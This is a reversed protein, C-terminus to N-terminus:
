RRRSRGVAGLIRQQAEVAHKVQDWSVVGMQVLAEGLRVGAARQISLAIEIEEPRAYGLQVFIEGILTDSTLRLGSGSDPETGMVFAGPAEPIPARPSPPPGKPMPGHRLHHQVRLGRQIQKPTTAGIRLLAEGIRIGERRQLRTAEEIQASTVIGLNKLIQGLLSEDSQPANEAGEEARQLDSPRPEAPEPESPRAAEVSESNIQAEVSVVLEHLIRFVVNASASEMTEASELLVAAADLRRALADGGVQRLEDAQALLQDLIAQHEYGDDVLADAIRRSLASERPPSM